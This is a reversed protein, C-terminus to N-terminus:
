IHSALYLRDGQITHRSDILIDVGRGQTLCTEGHCSMDRALPQCTVRQKDLKVQLQSSVLCEPVDTTQSKSDTVQKTDM